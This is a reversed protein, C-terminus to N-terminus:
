NRLDLQHLATQLRKFAKDLKDSMGVDIQNEVEAASQAIETEQLVAAAGRLSHAIRTAETTQGNTISKRLMALQQYGFRVLDILLDDPMEIPRSITPAIPLTAPLLLPALTLRLHARSIPKTMIASFDLGHAEARLYDQPMGSYLVLPIPITEPFRSEWHRVRQLLEIGTMDALLYDIVVLMPRTRQLWLLAEAGTALVNSQWGEAALQAQLLRRSIPHDDVVLILSSSQM